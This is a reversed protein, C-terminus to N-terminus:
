KKSYGNNQVLNPNVTFERSAIPMAWRYDGVPIETPVSGSIDTRQMPRGTRGLDFWLHGEWALEKARELYVNALTASLPTAGRNDAIKKLDDAASAGTVSAGNLIAEARNLYMESLRLVIINSADIKALGKGFYKMTFLANGKDDPAVLTKRADGDEYLNLLDASAGCDGYGKYCTLGWVNENGTGYSQTTNVFVEFIVEGKSRTKETWVCKDGFAVQNASWMSFKGSEIVKTAYDAAKQWNQSYLYVRSLLAQIAELTVKSYADEGGDRVYDPDIIQEAELLDKIILEYTKDMTERIPKAEPDSVTIYPVGLNDPSKTAAHAYSYPMAYTRVLDFHSFARLFLCEAKLNNKAQEDGQVNGLNNIVSNCCLIVYYAQGWLAKTSNPTYHVLYNETYRGSSYQPFNIWRKGNGTQMENSLIFDAGYWNTSALPAYAGATAADLGEITSLTLVDSQQLRPSKELFDKGCSVLTLAAAFAILINKKM